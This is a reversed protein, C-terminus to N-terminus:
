QGLMWQIINENYAATVMDVHSCGELCEFVATGNESQINLVLNEMDRKYLYEYQGVDGALAYVPVRSVNEYNLVGNAGCSVPVAASFYDGYKSILYWVGIAGRSHGTIIIRDTDAGCEDAAHAVLDMLTAPITGDIWTPTRTCPSLLICPFEDGYIERLTKAPGYDALSDLKDVEGDGHLFVVLPMGAVANEPVFLYYDLYDGTTDSTFRCVHAGPPIDILSPFTETEVPFTETIVPPETVPESTVATNAVSVTTPVTEAARPVCGSLFIVASLAVMAITEKMANVDKM